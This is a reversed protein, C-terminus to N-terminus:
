ECRTPTWSLWVLWTKNFKLREEAWSFPMGFVCFFHKSFGLNNGDFNLHYKTSIHLSHLYHLGGRARQVDWSILTIVSTCTQTTRFKSVSPYYSVLYSGCFTVAIYYVVQVLLSHSIVSCAKTRWMIFLMNM